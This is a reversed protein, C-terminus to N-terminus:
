LAILLKRATVINCPLKMMSLFTQKRMLEAEFSNKKISCTSKEHIEIPIKLRFHSTRGGMLILAAIGSSAVCIVIKGQAHLACCLTNYIFTKGTGGPGHLFFCQGSKSEIAAMIEDFAAQQDANFLLKENNQKKLNNSLIMTLSSM